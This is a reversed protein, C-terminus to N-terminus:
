RPLCMVVVVVVAVISSSIIIIIATIATIKRSKAVEFSPSGFPRFNVVEGFPSIKFLNLIKVYSM